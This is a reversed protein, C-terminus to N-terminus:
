RPPLLLDQPTLRGDAERALIWTSGKPSERGLLEAVVDGHTCLVAAAPGLEAVLALAEARAAGEALESREELPLGLVAALPEVTERCRTYPSTLIRAAGRGGLSEALWKAQRRGRRDLPRLSDDGEWDRRRGASAHRVLLVTV